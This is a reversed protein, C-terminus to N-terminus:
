DGADYEDEETLIVLEDTRPDYVIGTPTTRSHRLGIRVRRVGYVEECRKLMRLLADSRDPKSYRM